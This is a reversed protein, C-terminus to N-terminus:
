GALSRISSQSWITHVNVPHGDSGCECLVHSPIANKLPLFAMKMHVAVVRREDLDCYLAEVADSAIERREETTARTWMAQINDLLATAKGVDGREPEIALLAREDELRARETHYEKADLVGDIVLGKLRALKRDIAARETVLERRGTGRENAGMRSRRVVQVQEFLAPDISAEHLGRVWQGERLRVAWNGGEALPQVVMGTYFRNALMHRMSDKNFRGSEGQRKSRMHYGRDNLMRAIQADGYQGTACLEYVARVAASEEPAVLAVAKNNAHPVDAKVALVIKGSIPNTTDIPQQTCVDSM